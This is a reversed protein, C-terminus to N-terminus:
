TQQETSHALYCGSLPYVYMIIDPHNATVWEPLPEDWDLTKASLTPIHSEQEPLEPDDAQKITSPSDNLAMNERMLEM